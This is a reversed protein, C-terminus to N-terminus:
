YYVGLYTPMQGATVHGTSDLTAFETHPNNTGTAGGKSGLHERKWKELVAIRQELETIKDM